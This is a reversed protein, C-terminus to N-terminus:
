ASWAGARQLRQVLTLKDEPLVRAFVDCSATPDDRDDRLADPPCARDGLGLQRAVTRATALGDGTIMVTRVGLTRLADLVPRADPRPPDELALLGVLELRDVPGSAVAIVRAGDAALREVDDGLDAGPVLAAVARPAGKIVRLGGACTAETRKTAPDFPVFAEREGAPSPVGRDRAAHLVALDIPDQTADDSALAALRLLDADTRPPRPRLACVTLRNQTLTGTKDSALVEMAAAEEIASLRTVLVGREALERAGLATALTFTTPLAVPVSAVLLMLAFPLLDALPLGTALAWALVAAVLVADLAVLARVIRLVLRALHSATRATRVLEATRGFRTRAGTAVVEGTAEGRRVVSGAPATDGPGVEVPLSEGTLTSQDLLLVGDALTVDAPVLDGLRVHLADGPVLGTAPVRQWAGDRRVRAEVSLRQVLLALARDARQEQVFGVVANLLLLAAIVAAEGVKGLLLQLAVTAELMWPVPAWLKGLFARVPHPRPEAVANPGVERLRAAAEASTLGDPLRPRGDGTLV